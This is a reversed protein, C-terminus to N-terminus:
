KCEWSFLRNNYVYDFNFLVIVFGAIIKNGSNKIITIM